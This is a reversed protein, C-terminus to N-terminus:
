GAFYQLAMVVRTEVDDPADRPISQLASQAEIISYGLATLAAMVDADTDSILIPAEGLSDQLKDKLEFVIKEATKKGIGPVRTLVTPEERVVANQLHERSLTSLITLGLKPGVGSVGILTQFLLREKEDVFGYLAMLDERVILHTYIVADHPDMQQLVSRTVSIRYGIPGAMVVVWDDGQAVVPGTVIDIM